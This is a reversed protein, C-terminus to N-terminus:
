SIREFDPGFTWETGKTGSVNCADRIYDFKLFIPGSPDPRALSWHFEGYGVGACPGTPAWIFFESGKGLAWFGREVFLGSTFTAYRGETDQGTLRVRWRGERSQDPANRINKV